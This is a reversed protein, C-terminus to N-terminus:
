KNRRSLARDLAGGYVASTTAKSLSAKAAGIKKKDGTSSANALRQVSRVVANIPATSNANGNGKSM